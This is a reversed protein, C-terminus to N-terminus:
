VEIEDYDPSPDAVPLGAVAARYHTLSEAAREEFVRVADALAVRWSSDPLVRTVWLPMGGCYSVYDCWARGSVWLGFQIQPLHERPVRADLITRLQHKPLRSKIEILGDPGVLGDPSYGIRAGSDLTRVMFGCESVPAHHAAYLDRAHPEDDHGRMMDWSAFTRQPTGMIRESALADTLGRSTANHAVQLTSTLLDGVVSATVMGARAAHWEDSGQALDLVELASM